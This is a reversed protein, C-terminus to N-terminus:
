GREFNILEKFDSAPIMVWVEDQLEIEVAPKMRAAFAHDRITLLWELKVTISKKDTRKCEIKYEGANVDGKNWKSGSGATLHGGYKKASRREQKRSKTHKTDERLLYAPLETTM